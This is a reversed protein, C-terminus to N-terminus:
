PGSGQTEPAPLVHSSPCHARAASRRVAPGGAPEQAVGAVGGGPGSGEGGATNVNWGRPGRPRKGSWCREAGGVSGRPGGRRQARALGGGRGARGARGRGGGRAGAPRGRGAGRPAAARAACAGGRGRGRGELACARDSLGAGHLGRGGATGLSEAPREAAPRDQLSHSPPGPGELPRQPTQLRGPRPPPHRSPALAPRPGTGRAPIKLHGARLRACSCGARGGARHLPCARIGGGGRARGAAAERRGAERESRGGAEQRRGGAEARAAQRGRLRSRTLAGDRAAPRRHRPSGCRRTQGPRPPPPALGPGRTGSADARTPAGTPHSLSPGSPPINLPLSLCGPGCPLRHAPPFKPATRAGGGGPESGADCVTPPAAPSLGGPGM